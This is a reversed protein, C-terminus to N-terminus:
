APDEGLAKLLLRRLTEREAPSLRALLDGTLASSVEDVTGGHARGAETLTLVHRRRDRTDRERSM